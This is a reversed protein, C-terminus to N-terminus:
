CPEGLPDDLIDLHHGRCGDCALMENAPLGGSHQALRRHRQTCKRAVLWEVGLALITENADGGAGMDGPDAPGHRRFGGADWAPQPLEGGSSRRGPLVLGVGDM